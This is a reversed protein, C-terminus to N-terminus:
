VIKIQVDNLRYEEAIKIYESNLEFGIYNRRNQLAVMGTTGSGMFPDLVTGDVPCGALICPLILEPPFTAFHAQNFPRTAVTWVNRKNRTLGEWPVSNGIHCGPRDHADGLKRKINGSKRLRIGNIESNPTRKHAECARAYREENSYTAPEKIAESDYYYRQSKSLLFIYEHSNTPRDTVSEPMPNPKSWIIDSRLYWGDARLAFALMWPIGILDKPKLDGPTKSIKCQPSNPDPKYSEKQKDKVKWAGKGSGAYCDGINLWLTGDDKLVRKVERFVEVLKKIYEEPTPELGLQGQVGYDRLAWYPPSTVCTNVSKSELQKLGELCDMNHIKNLELKKDESIGMSKKINTLFEKYEECQELLAIAKETPGLSKIVKQKVKGNERYNEALSWYYKNNIKQKKLFM